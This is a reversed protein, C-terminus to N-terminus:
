KIIFCSTYAIKNPGYYYKIKNDKCIDSVLMGYSEMSSICKQPFRCPEDPYTCKLCITCCGSGFAMADKYEKKIVQYFKIFNNKHRKEVEIMNEFDLFDEIEGITQVIVGKSYNALKKRAEELTGCGPPCSWNTNYKNCKNEKCMNRVEDMLNINSVNLYGVEDFEYLKAREIVKNIDNM